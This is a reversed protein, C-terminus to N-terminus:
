MNVIRSTVGLESELPWWLRARETCVTTASCASNSACTHACTSPFAPPFHVAAHRCHVQLVFCADSSRPLSCAAPAFRRGPSSSTAPQALQVHAHHKSAPHCQRCQHTFCIALLHPPPPTRHRRPRLLPTRM